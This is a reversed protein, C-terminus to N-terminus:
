PPNDRLLLIVGGARRVLRLTGKAFEVSGVSHLLPRSCGSSRVSYVSCGGSRLDVFLSSVRGEKDM